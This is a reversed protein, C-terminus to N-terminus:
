NHGVALRKEGIRSSTKKDVHLLCTLPLALHRWNFLIGNRLLVFPVQIGAIAGRIKNDGTLSSHFATLELIKARLLRIQRASLHDVFDEKLLLFQTMQILDQFRRPNGVWANNGHHRYASLLEPLYLLGYRLAGYVFIGDVALGM